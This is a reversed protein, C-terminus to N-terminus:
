LVEVKPIAVVFRGGWDRIHALQSMIEDKLNWPLILVFDPRVEDIHEPAHVPITRGPLMMGQKHPSLDTTFPLLETDIGCYNLLTNGKAPAGYGCITKGQRKIDILLSLLELKCAPAANAFRAYPALTELGARNEDARVKDRGAELAADSPTDGRHKAWVRLSGGHTPLEEVGYVELGKDSFIREVALLSLYSFHEHYITDFQGGEFQRLLHPFEFSASGGRALLRAVGEVFDGIDPVHALVNNGVILDAAHGDQRMKEALAVGFFDVISEVGHNELAAAATNATPEVGLVPIGAARFNKLLYGDNSALEVVLSGSTLELRAMAADAYRRAHDLWSTSFSSFYVYSEDFHPPTEVDTLQVLWCGECVMAVLPFVMQMKHATEEPTRFHNSVPSLGLDAVTQTLPARCYRCEHAM